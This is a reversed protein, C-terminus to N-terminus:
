LKKFNINLFQKQNLDLITKNVSNIDNIPLDTLPTFTLQIHCKNQGKFSINDKFYLSLISSNYDIINFKTDEISCQFDNNVAKVVVNQLLQNSYQYYFFGLTLSIIMSFSFLAMKHAELISQAQTFFLPNLFSLLVISLYFAYNTFPIFEIKPYISTDAYIIIFPILFLSAYIVKSWKMQVFELTRFIYIATLPLVFVIISLNMRPSFTFVIISVIIMLLFFLLDKNWNLKKFVNFFLSILLIGAIPLLTFVLYFIRDLILDPLYTFNFFIDDQGIQNTIVLTIAALYLFSINSVVSLRKEKELKLNILKTLSLITIIILCFFNNMLLAILTLINMFFINTPKNEDFSKLLFYLISLNLLGSLLHDQIILTAFIIGGSVIFAGLTNWIDLDYFKLKIIKYSVFVALLLYFINLIRLLQYYNTIVDKLIIYFSKLLLFHLNTIQSLDWTTKERLSILLDIDQRSIVPSLAALAGLLLFFFILYFLVPIKEPFRFLSM